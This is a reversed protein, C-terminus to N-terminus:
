SEANRCAALLGLVAINPDGAGYVARIVAVGTAGDAIADPTLSATMGGLALVPIPTATIWQRVRDARLVPGKGAVAHFPSLTAFDAGQTHAAALGSRDHCSAGILARPGLRARADAISPGSEPLQVGDAGVRAALELDSNILLLAGAARTVERLKEAMARRREPAWNKLRLQVAIRGKPTDHLARRTREALQEGCEPDTILYLDFM